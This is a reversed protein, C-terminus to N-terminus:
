TSEKDGYTKSVLDELKARERVDPAVQAMEKCTKRFEAYQQNELFESAALAQLFVWVSENTWRLNGALRLVEGFVASTTVQRKPIAARLLLFALFSWGSIDDRHRLCWDKVAPVLEEALGGDGLSVLWRAHSWAYYNRPHREGAVAVIDVIDHRVDVPFGQSRSTQTLWRRHGWLTPSKTHRHLRSTLLSDVFWREADISERIEDSASPSSSLLFRELLRKRTNAATLHEPDMLLMVATAALLESRSVDGGERKERAEGLVKRAVMFAQVLGLKHVGLASGDRLVYTGVPMEYSGALMEIELLSDASSPDLAQSIAAYAVAANGGALLAAATGEDLARSMVSPYPLYTNRSPQRPTSSAFSPGGKGIAAPAGPSVVYKRRPGIFHLKLKTKTKKYNSPRM